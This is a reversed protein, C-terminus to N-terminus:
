DGFIQLCPFFIPVLAEAFMNSFYYALIGSDQPQINAQTYSEIGSLQEVIDQREPYFDDM